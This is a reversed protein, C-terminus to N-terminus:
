CKFIWISVQLTQSKICGFVLGPFRSSAMCVFVSGTLSLVLLSGSM